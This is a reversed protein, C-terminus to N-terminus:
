GLREYVWTWHFNKSISNVVSDSTFNWASWKYHGPPIDLFPRTLSRGPGWSTLACQHSCEPGINHIFCYVGGPYPWQLNFTFRGAPVLPAFLSSVSCVKYRHVLPCVPSIPICSHHLFHSGHGILGLDPNGSPWFPGFHTFNSWFHCVNWNHVKKPWFIWFFYGFRPRPLPM